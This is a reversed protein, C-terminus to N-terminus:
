SAARPSWSTARGPWARASDLGEAALAALVPAAEQDGSAACLVAARWAGPSLDGLENAYVDRLREPVPLAQPLPAAGARQARSLVRQCERLALPNGGTQSVLKAVVDASFGPGLLARAAEAALGEVSIIEFDDLPVPLPAGVRHTMVVAVRDHGLRRAAFALADASEADVWHM